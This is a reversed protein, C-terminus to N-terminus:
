GATGSVITGGRKRFEAPTAGTAAKFAAYFASRSRFGSETGLADVSVNANDPALLRRQAETVRRATLMDYFSGGGVESIAQSAHHAPVSAATSLQALSLNLNLYLPPPGDLTRQLTAYIRELQDRSLSSRAYRPGAVRQAQSLLLALLVLSAALAGILPVADEAARPSIFRLAQAAHISFMVALSGIPWWYGRASRDAARRGRAFAYAGAISYGLEYLPLAWQAQPWPTAFLVLTYIVIFAACAGFHLVLAPRALPRDIADRIYAYLV